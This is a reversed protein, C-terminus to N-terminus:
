WSCRSGRVTQRQSTHWKTCGFSSDPLLFDNHLARLKEKFNRLINRNSDYKAPNLAQVLPSHMTGPVMCRQAFPRGLHNNRNCNSLASSQYQQLLVPIAVSPPSDLLLDVQRVTELTQGSGRLIATSKRKSYLLRPPSYSCEVYHLDSSGSAHLLRTAREVTRGDNWPPELAM